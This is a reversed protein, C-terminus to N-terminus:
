FWVRIGVSPFFPIGRDEAREVIRPRDSAPDFVLASDIQIFNRANLINLFDAYFAWREGGWQPRYTLRADLRAFRPLRATNANSLDGLDPQFLPLGSGDRQPVQEERNGDGDADEVDTVLALRVGRVPTRPLGAAWRGTASLDLRPGIKLNGAVSLTHRRDYDFPYTVGYATRTARGFSYGTWGTLPALSGAGAYAVHADFGYATGTGENVPFTTVEPRAPVANVLAAPVDYGALRARRELDTELRGVVLDSLRKYYADVRASIGSGFVRQLGTVLHLARETTLNSTHAASLDVFYDSQFLKEYGPSQAHLRVAGDLRWGNGFGLTAGIRPSLAAGSTLTSREVRLGPQLLFRPSVLIRDQIWVGVRHSARSSDLRGPLARGLRVSSGNAQHQSRAGSITWGWQTDLAHAEAGVDLWHRASPTVVFEQRLAADRVGIDRMLEFELLGGSAISAASNAGRSNDLSREYASLSDRFQSFSAVTRSSARAGLNSEFTVALLHSRTRALRGEDASPREGTDTRERATMGAVSLRQQPRPRWSVRAQVDEFSPLAVGIAPEALLDFHTRRATVLWSGDAGQPMRGEFVVNADALSFFGFGQFAEANSGDRNTVVVLSSLRDGYRVDFAGPYLVFDELTEPNFTTALGIIGLDESPVFLRYPNHIEVGDMVILNQDPSGGRVAIRSGLEETAVVGPLVQLARFINELGGALNGVDAPRLALPPPGAPTIAPEVDTVTITEEFRAPEIPEVPAATAVSPPIMPPTPPAPRRAPRARRDRVILVSGGPGDRAVLGHPALLEDLMRRLSSARPEAAIRMDPRVAESSYILRLGRNELDRLADELRRGEFRLASREQGYASGAALLVGLSLAAATRVGRSM